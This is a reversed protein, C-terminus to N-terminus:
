RCLVFYKEEDACVIVRLYVICNGVNSEFRESIFAFSNSITSVLFVSYNNTSKRPQYMFHSSVTLIHRTMDRLGLGVHEAKFHLHLLM